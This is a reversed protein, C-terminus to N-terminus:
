HKEMKIDNENKTQKSLKQTVKNTASKDKDGLLNEQAIIGRMM